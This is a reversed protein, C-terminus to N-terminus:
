LFFLFCPRSRDFSLQGQFTFIYSIFSLQLDDKETARRVGFLSCSCSVEKRHITPIAWQDTVTRSLELLWYLQLSTLLPWKNFFDTAQTLKRWSSLTCSPLFFDAWWLKFRLAYASYSQRWETEAKPKKNLPIFAIRSERSDFSVRFGPGVKARYSRLSGPDDGWVSSAFMIGHICLCINHHWFHIEGRCFQLHGFESNPILTSYAIFLSGLTKKGETQTM